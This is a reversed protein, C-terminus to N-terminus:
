VRTTQSMYRCFAEVVIPDWKMGSEQNLTAMAEECTMAPRYPRQSTMADYADAVALVRAALPIEEGKLGKPYGGGDYRENYCEIIPLSGKLSASPRLLEASRALHRRVEAQEEATLVRPKLLIEKPIGIRGLDHLEAAKELQEMGEKSFGIESAIKRCLNAVRESHGATFSESAEQNIIITRAMNLYADDLEQRQKALVSAKDALQQHAFELEKRKRIAETYLRNNDIAIAIHGTLEELIERETESYANPRRSNLNLTGFVKGKSFLPARIASRMGERYHSEDIPFQMEKEFDSEINTQKNTIVWLTATWAVPVTADSIFETEESSSVALFRLNDEEVLTITVQDFDVLQKVGAAFTEYVDKIDPSSGIIQTLESIIELRKAYHAIKDEARKREIAYRIARMLLDGDFKGKMLYDQAGLRVTKLALSEDALGSLMVIPADPVQEQVKTFTNLGQSDPLGLDLLVIDFAGEELKILAEDLRGVYSIEFEKAGARKLKEQILRADGHNDEVLLVKM